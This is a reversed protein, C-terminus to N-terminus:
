IHVFNNGSDDSDSDSKQQGTVHLVCPQLSTACSLKRRHLFSNQTNKESYYLFYLFILCYRSILMFSLQFIDRIYTSICVCVCVCIYIYM